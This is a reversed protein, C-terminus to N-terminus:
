ANGAIKSILWWVHDIAWHPQSFFLGPVSSVVGMLGLFLFMADFQWPVPKDPV